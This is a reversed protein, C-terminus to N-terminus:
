FKMRIGVGATNGTSQGTLSDSLYAAYVDTHKSLPLDYGVAWTRRRVGSSGSSKSYAYSALVTGSGLPISAGAQGTSVGFGGPEVHDQVHLYQAYLKVVKFDYTAAFQVASQSQLGPVGPLASGIDGAVASYNVYQYDVTASFPGHFYLLQADWKHLGADGAANGFAYMAGGTLGNFLPSHFAVANSWGTDGVLGQGGEGLYTQLVIPSFTFSDAFPNFLITAVFMDTTQRGATFTGYSSEIGVYANRAFFVDGPYRGAAGNQPQFFSELTFLARVDGGLDEFGKVGWYSTSMGGGGEVWANAASPEKTAAAFVDAQGYLSVSSQAFASANPLMCLVALISTVSRALTEM